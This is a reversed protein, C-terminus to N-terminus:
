AAFKGVGALHSRRKLVIYRVAVYAQRLAILRNGDATWHGAKCRVLEGAKRRRIDALLQWDIDDHDPNFHPIVRELRWPHRVLEDAGDVVAQAIFTRSAM